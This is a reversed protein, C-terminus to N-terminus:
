KIYKGSDTLLSHDTPPEGFEWINNSAQAVNFVLGPTHVRPMWFCTHHEFDCHFKSTLCSDESEDSGDICNPSGDCVQDQNVCMLGDNCEFTTLSCHGTSPDPYIPTCDYFHLEDLALVGFIDKTRTM